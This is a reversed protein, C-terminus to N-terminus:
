VSGALLREVACSLASEPAPDDLADPLREAITRSLAARREADRALAVARQALTDADPCVLADALGLAALLAASQRGRMFRGPCTVVPLGALLADITTNGGSWHLTDLMVDCARNIELYRARSTMPLFVLQDALAGRARLAAGLRARLRRTAGAHENDFLVLRAYPDAAAVAALVADNDPHVKFAAQPVLYLRGKDPLGLEARPRAAPPPPAAYRTGVGPLPLLTESYHAAADDPEMAAATFQHTVTPLGCTVPHGWACAQRPALRLAALAFVRADMGLEPYIVLDLRADRIARAAAELPGDLRHLRAPPAGIRETAADFRPGLQFVDVDFGAAALMASWRGFYAGITTDRFFSSVLGVRRRTAGAPAPPSGLADPALVAASKALWEGYRRQLAKDDEGQYALLFNSWALQDLRAECATLRQPHFTAVLEDLGRAYRERAAALETRSAAVPPLVLRAGIEAQLGPAHRGHGSTAGLAAFAARAADADGHGALEHAVGLWGGLADTTAHGLLAHV